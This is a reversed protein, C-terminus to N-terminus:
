LPKTSSSYNSLVSGDTSEPFNSSHDPKYEMQMERLDSIRMECVDLEYKIIDSLSATERNGNFQPKNRLSTYCRQYLNKIGQITQSLEKSVNKKKDESKDKEAEKVVVETRIQELFKQNNQLVSTSVLLQNQKEIKLTQVKRLLDDAKQENAESQRMLDKNAEQLTNYRNLIEGVEEYDGSSDEVVSELYSKYCRKAVLEKYLDKQEVELVGIKEGLNAIEKVKEEFTSRESKIKLEARQRKADNEQIFKEFKLVQDRTKAQKEEFQLRKKECIDMRQKYDLKMLELSEDIERLEKRKKLLMTSQSTQGAAALLQELEMIDNKVGDIKEGKQTLFAGGDVKTVEVSM